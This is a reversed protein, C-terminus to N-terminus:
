INISMRVVGILEEPIEFVSFDILTQSSPSHMCTWLHKFAIQLSSFSNHRKKMSAVPVGSPIKM